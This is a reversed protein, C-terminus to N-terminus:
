AFERSVNRLDDSIIRPDRALWLVVTLQAPESAPPAIRRSEVMELGAETMAQAIEEGSFGLRRHAFNERLHEQEHAAFDVLLLRGGPRLLGAAERLARGPDDLFHLVQHIIVLDYSGREVPPAYVDGQRLQVNRLGREDIRARALNLM